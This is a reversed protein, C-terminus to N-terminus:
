GPECLQLGVPAPVGTGWWACSVGPARLRGYPTQKGLAGLAWLELPWLKQATRFQQSNNSAMSRCKSDAWGALTSRRGDYHPQMAAVSGVQHLYMAQMVFARLSSAGPADTAAGARGLSSEGAEKIITIPFERFVRQERVRLRRM